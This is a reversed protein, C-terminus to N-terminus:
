GVEKLNEFLDRGVTWIDGAGVTLVVDGPEVITLLYDKIELKNPIYAVRSRPRHSLIEDILVKGSVGPLPIEGADYVDTMITVDADVFADGFQGALLKTRSYRHPQFVCIVRKWAGGAAAKLTALVETPHHAYDDIIEIDRGQGILQFRRKVGSFAALSRGAQEIDVGAAQAVTLAALANLINHEGPVRLNVPRKAGTRHDHLVFESEMGKFVADSFFIDNADGRGFTIYDRGSAKAALEAPSGDGWVVAVADPAMSALWGQFLEILKEFSGHHDLHDTDINTIVAYKPRLHVLSGDSEDAEVVCFDGRGYKANSGIDNLEGGILFTSDLGAKEMILATMSTTTTKGHTGGIAIAEPKRRCIAALMEARALVPLTLARAERLEQNSEPIASSIVVVDAGAVNEPAHGITIGAGLDSLVRTYRSEKLDSGSVKAGMELLVKAIGSMGAGGIGIFHFRQKLTSDDLNM